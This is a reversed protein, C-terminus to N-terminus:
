KLIIRGLKESFSQKVKEYAMQEALLEIQEVESLEETNLKTRIQRIFEAIKHQKFNYIAYLVTNLLDSDEQKTYIRYQTAWKPSLEDEFGILETTLALIEPNSSKLFYKYTYLIGESVGDLIEGYIANCVPDNFTLEDSSIEQIVMEILSISHSRNDVHLIIEKNGYKLM